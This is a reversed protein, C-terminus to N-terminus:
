GLVLRFIQNSVFFGGPQGPIPQLNFTETFLMPKDFANDVAMSGTVVVLVGGNPSPQADTTSLGHKITGLSPQQFQGIIASAGQLQNREWTLMSEPRYLSALAARASGGADFTTYYHQVFANAINTFDM